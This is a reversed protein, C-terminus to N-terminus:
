IHILSLGYVTTPFPISGVLADVFSIIPWALGALVTILKGALTAYTNHQREIEIQSYVVPQVETLRVAGGMLSQSYASIENIAVVEAIQSYGESDGLIQVFYRHRVIADFGQQMIFLVYAEVSPEEGREESYALYNHLLLDEDRLSAKTNASSFSSAMLLITIVFGVVIRQVKRKM